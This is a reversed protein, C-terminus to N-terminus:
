SNRYDPTPASIEVLEQFKTTEKNLMKLAHSIGPKFIKDWVTQWNQWGVRTFYGASWPSLIEDTEIKKVWIENKIDLISLGFNLSGIGNGQYQVMNQVIKSSNWHRGTELVAISKGRWRFEARCNTWFMLSVNGDLITNVAQALEISRNIFPLFKPDITRTLQITPENKAM